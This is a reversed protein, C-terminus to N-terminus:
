SGKINGRMVSLSEILNKQNDYEKVIRKMVMERQKRELDKLKRVVMIMKPIARIANDVITINASRATRSGPNLDIAVVIKGMKVLAETRDGDELPVLVTDAKM